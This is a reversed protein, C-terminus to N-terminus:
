GAPAQFATSSENYRQYLDDQAARHIRPVYMVEKVELYKLIYRELELANKSMSVNLAIRDGQWRAQMMLEENGRSLCAEVTLHPSHFLAPNLGLALPDTACFKALERAVADRGIVVGSYYPYYLFKVPAGQAAELALLAVFFCEHFNTVAAFVVRRGPTADLFSKLSEACEQVFKPNTVTRHRPHGFQLNFKQLSIVCAVRFCSNRDKPLANALLPLPQKSSTPFVPLNPYKLLDRRQECCLNEPKFCREVENHVFKCEQGSLRIGCDPFDEATPIRGLIFGFKDSKQANMYTLRKAIDDTAFCSIGDRENLSSFDYVDVVTNELVMNPLRVLMNSCTEAIEGKTAKPKRAKLKRAKEVVSNFYKLAEDHGTLTIPGMQECTSCVRFIYQAVDNQFRDWSPDEDCFLSFPDM